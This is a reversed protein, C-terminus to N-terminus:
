SRSEQGEESMIILIKQKIQWQRKHSLTSLVFPDATKFNASFHVQLLHTPFIDWIPLVISPICYFIISYLRQYDSDHYGHLVLFKVKSMLYCSSTNEKTSTAKVRVAFVLCYYNNNNQAKLLFAKTTFLNM